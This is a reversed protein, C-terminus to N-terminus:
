KGYNYMIPFKRLLISQATMLMFMARNQKHKIYKYLTSWTSSSIFNFLIVIKMVAGLARQFILTDLRDAKGFFWIFLGDKPRNKEEEESM